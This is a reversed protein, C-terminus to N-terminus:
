ARIRVVDGFGDRELVPEDRGEEIVMDRHVACYDSGRAALCPCDPVRCPPRSPTM